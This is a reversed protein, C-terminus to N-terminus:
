ESATFTTQWPTPAPLVAAGAEKGVVHGRLPRPSLVTGRISAEVVVEVVAGPLLVVSCGAKVHSWSARPSNLQFSRTRRKRMTFIRKMVSKGTGAM